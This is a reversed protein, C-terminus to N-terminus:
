KVFVKVSYTGPSPESSGHGANPHARKWEDWLIVAVQQSALVEWRAGTGRQGALEVDPIGRAVGFMEAQSEVAEDALALSPAFLLLFVAAFAALRHVARNPTRAQFGRTHGSRFM